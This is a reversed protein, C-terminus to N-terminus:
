KTPQNTCTQKPMSEEDRTILINKDGQYLSPVKRAPFEIDAKLYFPHPCFARGM